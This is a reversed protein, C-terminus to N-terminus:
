FNGPFELGSTKLDAGQLIEFNRGSVERSSKVKVERHVVTPSVMLFGTGPLFGFKQLDKNINAM